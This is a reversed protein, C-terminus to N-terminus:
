VIKSCTYTRTVGVTLIWDMQMAWVTQRGEEGEVDRMEAVMVRSEMVTMIGDQFHYIFLTM